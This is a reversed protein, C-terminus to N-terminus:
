QFSKSIKMELARFLETNKLSSVREMKSTMFVKETEKIFVCDIVYEKDGAFLNTNLAVNELM